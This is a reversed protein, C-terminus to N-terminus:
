DVFGMVKRYAGKMLNEFLAVRDEWVAIHDVFIEVHTVTAEEYTYGDGIAFGIDSAWKHYHYLRQQVDVFFQETDFNSNLDTIYLVTNDELHYVLEREISGRRYEWMDDIYGTCRDAVISQTIENWTLVYSDYDGINDSEQRIVGGMKNMYEM